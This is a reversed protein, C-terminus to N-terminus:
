ILSSVQQWSKRFYIQANETRFRLMIESQSIHILFRRLHISHMWYRGTDRVDAFIEQFFLSLLLLLLSPSTSARM